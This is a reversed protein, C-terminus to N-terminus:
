KTPTLPEVSDVHIAAGELSGWIKVREGAFRDLFAADGNLAFVTDGSVLAYGSGSKVCLRTCGAASQGSDTVHKAGCHVDSVVGAFTQPNGAMLHQVPMEFSQPAAFLAVATTSLFVLALAMAMAVACSLLITGVWFRKRPELEPSTIINEMYNGLDRGHKGWCSYLPSVTSASLFGTAVVTASGCKLACVQHWKM